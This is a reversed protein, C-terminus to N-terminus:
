YWITDRSTDDPAAYTNRDHIKKGKNGHKQLSFRDWNDPAILRDLRLHLMPGLAFIRNASLRQEQLQVTM